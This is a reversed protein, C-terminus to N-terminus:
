AGNIGSQLRPRAQINCLRSDVSTKDGRGLSSLAPECLLRRDSDEELIACVIRPTFFFRSGFYYEMRFTVLFLRAASEAGM